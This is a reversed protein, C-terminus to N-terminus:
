LKKLVLCGDSDIKFEKDRTIIKEGSGKINKIPNVITTKTITDMEIEVDIETSEQLSLWVDLCSKSFNQEQIQFKRFNEESFRKYQNLQLGFKIGELFTRADDEIFFLYSDREEEDLGNLQKEIYDSKLKDFDVGFFIEDCNQKSLKLGQGKLSTSAIINNDVKLLYNVDTKILKGKMNIKLINSIDSGNM